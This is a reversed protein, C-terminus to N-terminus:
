PWTRLHAVPHPCQRQEPGPLQRFMTASPWRCGVGDYARGGLALKGGDGRHAGPFGRGGASPQQGARDAPYPSSTPPNRQTSGTGEADPPTNSFYTKSPARECLEPLRRRLRRHRRALRYQSIGAHLARHARISWGLLLAKFQDRRQVTSLRKDKLIDLGEPYQRRRFERRAHRRPLQAVLLPAPSCCVSHLVARRILPLALPM